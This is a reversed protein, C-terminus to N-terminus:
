PTKYSALQSKIASLEEQLALHHQYLDEYKGELRDRYLELAIIRDQLRSIEDRTITRSNLYLIGFGSLMATFLASISTIDTM